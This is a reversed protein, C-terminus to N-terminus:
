NPPLEFYNALGMEKIRKVFPKYFPEAIQQGETIYKETQPHSLCEWPKFNYREKEPPLTQEQAFLPYRRKTEKSVRRDRREDYVGYRERQVRWFIDTEEIQYFDNLMAAAIRRDELVHPSRKEDTLTISSEEDATVLWYGKNDAYGFLLGARALKTCLATHEGWGSIAPNRKGIYLEISRLTATAMGNVSSALLINNPRPHKQTILSEKPKFHLGNRISPFGLLGLRGWLLNKIAFKTFGYQVLATDADRHIIVEGRAADTLINRSKCLNFKKSYEEIFRVNKWKEMAGKEFALSEAIKQGREQAKQAFNRDQTGLFICEILESPFDEQLFEALRKWWRHRNLTTPILWSVLPRQNQYM